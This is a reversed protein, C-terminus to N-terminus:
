IKEDSAEEMERLIERRVWFLEGISPWRLKLEAESLARFDKKVKEVSERFNFEECGSAKDNYCISAEGEHKGVCQITCISIKDNIQKGSHRCNETRRVMSSRIFADEANEIKRKLRTEVRGLLSGFCHLPLRSIEGDGSNSLM